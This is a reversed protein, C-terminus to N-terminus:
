AVLGDLYGNLEARAAKVQDPTATALSLMTDTWGGFSGRDAYPVGLLECIVSMPLPLALGSVLDAPQGQAELADLLGETVEALYPRLAAIRKASFARVVLRHLRTHDPPDMALITSPDPAVPRMRPAGDRCAAARSFRRDTLVARVAEYGVVLWAADGTPLRVRFVARRGPGGTLVAPPEFVRGGPLPFEVEVDVSGTM